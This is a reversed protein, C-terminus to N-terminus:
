SNNPISSRNLYFFETTRQASLAVFKNNGYALRYPTNYGASNFTKGGYLWNVGDYSYYYCYNLTSATMGLALYVGDGYAVDQFSFQLATLDVMTWNSGDTSYAVKNYGYALFKNNAFIVGAWFGGNSFVTSWTVGDTSYGLGGMTQDSSYSVIFVGNGYAIHDAFSLSGIYSSNNRTWNIGNSSYQSRGSNGATVYKSAGYAVCVATFASGSTDKASETWTVADTSYFHYTWGDVVAAYKGNGYCVDNAGEAGTNPTNPFTSYTWTLGDTSSIVWYNVSSVAVFKNNIYKINKFFPGGSTNFTSNTFQGLTWEFVDLVVSVTKNSNVTVTGTQTIYNSRSVTYTVSTGAPVAVSNGSRPYGTSFTVLADSPTPNVTLIYATTADFSNDQYVTGVIANLTTGNNNYLPLGVALTTTNTYYRQVAADLDKWSYLDGVNTAM